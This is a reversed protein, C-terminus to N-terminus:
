MLLFYELQKLPMVIFLLNYRKCIEGVRKIDILNGTLNSGHTCIIAKTNNKILSEMEEYSINGLKDAKIFSLEVGKEEIEYLPRLVSNHELM